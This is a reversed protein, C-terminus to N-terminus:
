KEDMDWVWIVTVPFLFFHLKPTARIATRIKQQEELQKWTKQSFLIILL